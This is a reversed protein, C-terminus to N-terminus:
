LTQGVAPLLAVSQRCELSAGVLALCSFVIVDVVEVVAGM